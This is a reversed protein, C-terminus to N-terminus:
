STGQTLKDSGDGGLLLHPRVNKQHQGLSSTRRRGFHWAVRAPKAPKSESRHDADSGEYHSRVLTELEADNMIPVIREAIKYM